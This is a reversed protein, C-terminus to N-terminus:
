DERDLLDIIEAIEKHTPARGKFDMLRVMKVM